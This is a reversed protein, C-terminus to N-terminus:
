VYFFLSQSMVLMRKQLNLVELTKIFRVTMTVVIAKRGKRKMKKLRGKSNDVRAEIQDSKELHM